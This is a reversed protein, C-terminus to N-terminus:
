CRGAPSELYEVYAMLAALGPSDAEAVCILDFSSEWGISMEFSRGTASIALNADHRSGNAKQRDAFKALVGGLIIADVNPPDPHQYDPENVSLGHYGYFFYSRGDGYKSLEEPALEILKDLLEVTKKRNEVVQNTM